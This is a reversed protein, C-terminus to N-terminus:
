MGLFESETTVGPFRLTRGAVNGAYRHRSCRDPINLFSVLALGPSVGASMGHIHTVTNPRALAAARKRRTDTELRDRGRYAEEPYTSRPTSRRNPM